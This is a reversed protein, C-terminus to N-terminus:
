LGVGMRVAFRESDRVVVTRLAPSPPPFQRETYYHYLRQLHYGASFILDAKGASFRYVLMPHVFYGGEDSRLTQLGDDQQIRPWAQSFGGQWEVSFTHGSKELFSWAISAFIPLTECDHYANYGVGAGIDLSRLRVGQVVSASAFPPDGAGRFLGGAQVSVFGKLAVTSSDRQANVTGTTM